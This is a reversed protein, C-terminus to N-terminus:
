DMIQKAKPNWLISTSRSCSVPCEDSAPIQRRERGASNTDYILLGLLFWCKLVILDFAINKAGSLMIKIWRFCSAPQWVAEEGM